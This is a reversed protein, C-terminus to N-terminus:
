VGEGPPRREVQLHSVRQELADHPAQHTYHLRAPQDSRARQPCKPLSVLALGRLELQPSVQRQQELSGHELEGSSEDISTVSVARGARSFASAVDGLM